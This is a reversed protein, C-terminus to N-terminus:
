CLPDTTPRLSSDFSSGTTTTTEVIETPGLRTANLGADFTITSSPATEREISAVAAVLPSTSHSGFFSELLAATSALQAINPAGAVILVGAVLEAHDFAPRSSDSTDSLRRSLEAMWGQIGGTGVTFVTSSTGALNTTSLASIRTNVSQIDAAIRQFETVLGGLQTATNNLMTAIGSNSVSRNRLNSFLTNVLRTVETLPPFLTALTPMAVWDPPASARSGVPQAIAIRICNSFNSMPQVAGGVTYRVAAAYYYVTGATLESSDDTYGRTFGDNTIRAVVQVGSENQLDSRADQPQRSFVQNWTFKDRLGADTSRVVFIETAIFQDDAFLPFTTVPPVATWTLEVVLRGTNNVVSVIRGTLNRLVPRTHAALDAREGANILSNILNFNPQLTELDTAGFIICAGAVAFNPPFLPRQFDGPDQLSTMAVRFFGQNGGVATNSANIFQSVAPPLTTPDRDAFAGDELMQDYSPILERLRDQIAARVGRGYYQKQIPIAIAHVTTGTVVGNILAQIQDLGTNLASEVPNTTAQSTFQAALTLGQRVLNLYSSLTNVVQGVADTAQKLEPPFINGVNFTAWNAM